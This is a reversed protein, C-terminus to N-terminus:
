YSITIRSHGVPEQPYGVGEQIVNVWFTTRTVLNILVKITGTVTVEEGPRLPQDGWGWRVPYPRDAQEWQVGVRWFGPREYYLPQGEADKFSLFNSGTDYPTDSPPGLSRLTADGTNKIRVTVRLTGGIPVAPPEIKVDTIELRPTGAGEVRVVTTNDTINGAKDWGRLHLTYDGDPALRGGALGNWRISHFAPTQEKEPEVIYRQGDKDTASVEVMADKNQRWSLVVEDDQADGNPSFVNPSVQVDAFEPPFNDAQRLEVASQATVQQGGADATVVVQYRGNPLVRRDERDPDPAYSGYFTAAYNGAPRDAGDQRFGYRKGQQDELYITVRAPVGLRYNFIAADDVGDGDPSIVAPAVSVDSLLPPANCATLLLPALLLACLYAIPLRM